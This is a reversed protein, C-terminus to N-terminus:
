SVAHMLQTYFHPDIYSALAFLALYLMMLTPVIWLILCIRNIRRLVPRQRYRQGRLRDIGRIIPYQVIGLFSIGPILFDFIINDYPSVIEYLKYLGALIPFWIVITKIASLANRDARMRGVDTVHFGGQGDPQFHYDSM